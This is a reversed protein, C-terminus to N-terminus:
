DQWQDLEELYAEDEGFTQAWIKGSRACAMERVRDGLLNRHHAASRLWRELAGKARREGGVLNEYLPAPYGEARMRQQETRLEPDAHEHGFPAGSSLYIAQTLAARHLRPNWPTHPLGLLRRYEQVLGHLELEDQSPGQGAVELAELRREEQVRVNRDQALARAEGRSTPLNQVTLQMGAEVHGHDPDLAYCWDPLPPDLRHLARGQLWRLEDLGALEQEGVTIRTRSGWLKEVVELRGEVQAQIARYEAARERGVLQVDHPHFYREEDRILELAEARARQLEAHEELLAPMRRMFTTLSLRAREERVSLAARLAELDGGLVERVAALAEERGSADADKLAKLREALQAPVQANQCDQGAAFSRAAVGLFLLGATFLGLSRPSLM